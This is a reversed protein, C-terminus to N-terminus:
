LKGIQFRLPPPQGEVTWDLFPVSLMMPQDDDTETTSTEDSLIQFFPAFFRGHKSFRENQNISHELQQLASM